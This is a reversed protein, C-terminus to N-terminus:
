AGTARIGSESVLFRVLADHPERPVRPAVLADHVVGITVAHAPLLPLLRDYYGRGYGLRAGRRDFCLGPVLVLDIRELPMAPADARPQLFGLRHRELADPELAHVQLGGGDPTRTTALLPRQAPADAGTDGALLGPRLGGALPDLESGFALYVLAVRARRWPTWALLHEAVAREATRRADAQALAQRRARAWSRWAAKSAGEPPPAPMPPTPEDPVDGALTGETPQAVPARRPLRRYQRM